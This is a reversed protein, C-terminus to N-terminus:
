GWDALLALLDGMGVTGDGNLDAPCPDPPDPCPGWAALLILLDNIGVTGDGDLDGPIAEGPTSQPDAPDSGADLEDRDFFGDEDRDVGIRRESGAPVLTFTIESGPGASAFLTQAEVVEGARDSQFTDATVLYYGRQEGVVVGKAVLGAAGGAAVDILEEVTAPPDAAVPPPLTVQVGVGAHTDTSFSLLFAEVDANEQPTMGFFFALFRNLSDFSGDHIFGFGKNGPAPNSAFFGVKDYLNRLQATKANQTIGGTIFPALIEFNSGTPMAHCGVCDFGQAKPMGKGPSNGFLLSGQVANGGNPHNSPLSGDLGRYPNPPFTLTAVFAEFQALELGSLQEDDGLLSEFAGNFTALDERDGRWHFPETGVIGVLTQTSMPGKMPHWDVCGDGDGICDQNFEKMQGGPDGLDWALQDMRGDVHCSACSAQGLGSTAHTDYLHRRGDRIVEPTPDYFGVREMEMLSVEDIVSVTGDFKNLVYVRERDPDVALGTPGGGVEVIGIRQGNSALVLVNNSGMGAIYVRDGAESWKIARPDGISLDREGQPVTPTEYTLHPNLDLVIDASSSGATFAAVLVRVFIGNLNPEFRIHNIADTGVMAVLGSPGVDLHMNLNMAGTVYSVALSSADIVAADHDHLDWSVASSWDGNNDDRWTGDIQKKVILSVPPPAPLKPDIPPSFDSGDNPPPNPAGPYPNIGPDSVFFAENLVTSSNGSEFIAVYVNTGDAALGRPDEGEIELVIPGVSLDDPNYVKVQNLQSVSVFARTPGAFIVDAPEDGPYLTTVVNMSDLDVISVSDSVHNVVWAEDDTRARVSVPDLGVPISGALLLGSETVTFVELRNDATNVALLRSGDPTMALPSVHPSEWNVFSAQGFAACASVLIGVLSTVTMQM